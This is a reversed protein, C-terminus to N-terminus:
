AFWINGDNDEKLYEINMNGFIDRLFTCPIFDDTKYDYEFIGKPSTFIIRSKLKFVHNRNDAVIGKTDKYVSYTPNVGNNLQVKYLGKYPHSVWAINNDLAIFRVSEFHSHISPNKFVGKEYNYFNVGNYTGALVTPSPM